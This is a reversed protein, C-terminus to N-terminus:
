LKLLKELGRLRNKCEFKGYLHGATIREFTFLPEDLFRYYEELEDTGAFLGDEIMYLISQGVVEDTIYPLAKDM